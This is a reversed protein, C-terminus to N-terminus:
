ASHPGTRQWLTEKNRTVKRVRHLPIETEKGNILIIMTNGELRIIDQHNVPILKKTLNDWYHLTTQEPKEHPDWKLKDLLEKITIM